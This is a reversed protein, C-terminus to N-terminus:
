SRLIKEFCDKWKEEPNSNRELFKECFTDIAERTSPSNWWGKIDDNLNNIFDAAGLATDHLIGNDRLTQYSNQMEARMQWHDPNWFCVFPFNAYILQLIVTSNYAIACLCSNKLDDLLKINQSIVPLQRGEFKELIFETENWDYNVTHPRFVIEFNRIQEIFDVWSLMTEYHQNGQPISLSFYQYRPLTYSLFLIRKCSFEPKPCRNAFQNLEISPLVRIKPKKHGWGWSVFHDAVRLEYEETSNWKLTGYNNGHQGIIYKSGMKRSDIVWFKFLDNHAYSNSTYILGRNEPYFVKALRVNDNYGEIFCTPLSFALIRSLATECVKESVLEEAISNRFSYSLPTSAPNLIPVEPHGNEGLCERLKGVSFHCESFSYLYFKKFNSPPPNIQNQIIGKQPEIEFRTIDGDHYLYDFMLSYILEHYLESNVKELFKNTSSNQLMLEDFRYLTVEHVDYHEYALNLMSKKDFYIDLIYFLWYGLLVEWDILSNKVSLNCNLKESLFKIIRPYLSWTKRFNEELTEPNTGYFPLVDTPHIDNAQPLAWSALVVNKIGATFQQKATQLHLRIKEKM